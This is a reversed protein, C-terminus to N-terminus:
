IWESVSYVAGYWCFVYQGPQCYFSPTNSITDSQIFTERTGEKQLIKEATKNNM